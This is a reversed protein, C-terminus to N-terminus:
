WATVYVNWTQDATTGLLNIVIGTGTIQVDGEVENGNNDYIQIVKPRKTGLKSLNTGSFLESHTTSGATTTISFSVCRAYNTSIKVGAEDRIASQVQVENGGYTLKKYTVM